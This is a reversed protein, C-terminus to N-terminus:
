VFLCFLIDHAEFNLSNLEGNSPLHNRAFFLLHHNLAFFFYLLFHVQSLLPLISAARFLQRRGRSFPIRPASERNVSFTHTRQLPLFSGVGPRFGIPLHGGGIASEGFFRELIASFPRHRGNVARRCLSFYSAGGRNSHGAKAQISGEGQSTTRRYVTPFFNGQYSPLFRWQSPAERTGARGVCSALLPLRAVKCAM